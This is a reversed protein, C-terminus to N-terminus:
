KSDKCCYTAIFGDVPPELLDTEFTTPQAPIDSNDVNYSTYMTRAVRENVLEPFRQSFRRVM